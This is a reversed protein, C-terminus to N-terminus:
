GATARFMERPQARSGSYDDTALHRDESTAQYFDEGTAPRITMLSHNGALDTREAHDPYGLTDLFTLM